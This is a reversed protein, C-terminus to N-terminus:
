RSVIKTCTNSVCEDRLIVLIPIFLLTRRMNNWKAPSYGKKLKKYDLKGNKKTRGRRLEHKIKDTRAFILNTKKIGM